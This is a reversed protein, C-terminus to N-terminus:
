ILHLFKHACRYTQYSASALIPIARGRSQLLTLGIKKTSFIKEQREQIDHRTNQRPSIDKYRHFDRGGAELQPTQDGQDKLTRTRIRRHLRGVRQLAKRNSSVKLKIYNTCSTISFVVKQSPSHSHLDGIANILLQHWHCTM